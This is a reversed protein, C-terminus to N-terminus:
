AFGGRICLLIDGPFIARLTLRFEENCAFPAPEREALPVM